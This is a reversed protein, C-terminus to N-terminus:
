LSLTQRLYTKKYWKSADQILEAHTGIQNISGKEIVIIIDANILSTLKHTCM